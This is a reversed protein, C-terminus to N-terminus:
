RHQYCYGGGAVRRQCPRGKKTMAGCISSTPKKTSPSSNFQKKVTASSTQRSQNKTPHQKSLSNNYVPPNNATSKTDQSKVANYVDFTSKTTIDWTSDSYLIYYKGVESKIVDICVRHQSYSFSCIISLLISLLIKRMIQQNTNM